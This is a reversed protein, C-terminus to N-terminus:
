APPTTSRDPAAGTHYSGCGPRQPGGPPRLRLSRPPVRPHPRAHEHEYVLVHHVPRPSGRHCPGAVDLPRPGPVAGNLGVTGACALSRTRGPFGADRSLRDLKAVLLRAGSIKALQLAQELQPRHAVKGSEVEVFEKLLKWRGGDLYQTVAQRQAEIGLGEAGQKDTSVRLYSVYRGDHRPSM